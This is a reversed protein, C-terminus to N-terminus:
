ATLVASEEWEYDYKRFDESLLWETYERTETDFFDQYPRRSRRLSRNLERLPPAPLGRDALAETLDRELTEFRLIRTADEGHLFFLQGCMMYKPDHEMIDSVWGTCIRYYGLKRIFWWSVLADFPNRVTTMVEWESREEETLGEWFPSQSIAMHRHAGPAWSFGIEKLAAETALSATRPHAVYVM